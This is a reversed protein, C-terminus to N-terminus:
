QVASNQFKYLQMEEKSEYTFHYMSTAQLNEATELQINEDKLLEALEPDVEGAEDKEDITSSTFPIGETDRSNRPLLKSQKIRKTLLASPVMSSVRELGEDLHFAVLFSAHRIYFPTGLQQFRQYLNKLTNVWQIQESYRLQERDAHLSNPAKKSVKRKNSLTPSGARAMPIPTFSSNPQM